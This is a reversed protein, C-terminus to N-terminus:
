FVTPHWCESEEIKMYINKNKRIMDHCKATGDLQLDLDHILKFRGRFIHGAKLTRHGEHNIM